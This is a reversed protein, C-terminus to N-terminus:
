GTVPVRAPAHFVPTVRRESIRWCHDDCWTLEDDFDAVLSVGARGAPSAPGAGSVAYSIWTSRARVLAPRWDGSGGPGPRPPGGLPSIRLGSYLHRTPGAAGREAYRRQIAPRGRVAVEGSVLLADETFLAALAPVDGHDLYWAWDALVADIEARLLAATITSM